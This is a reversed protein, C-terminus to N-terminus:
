RAASGPLGGEARAFAGLAALNSPFAIGDPLQELPFWAAEIVDDAPVLAADEPIECRYYLSLVFKAEEAVDDRPYEDIDVSVLRPRAMPVGLEERLERALGHEPHEGNELFGGPLDWMGRYPEIGRRTLLVHLRGGISRAVIAGVAPKSNQWFHFGCARCVLLNLERSTDHSGQGALARDRPAGCVPCFKYSTV